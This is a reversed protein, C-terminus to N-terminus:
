NRCADGNHKGGREQQQKRGRSQCNFTYATDNALGTITRTQVGKGVTVPQTVGTAAPSFTIEISALDTDAPDTWTLTIQGDGPIGGFVTVTAPPTTDNDGGTIPDACGTLVLAGRVKPEFTRPEFRRLGRSSHIV